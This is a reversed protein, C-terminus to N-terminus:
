YGSGYLKYIRNPYNAPDPDSGTWALKIPMAVQTLKKGLVVQHLPYPRVSFDHISM